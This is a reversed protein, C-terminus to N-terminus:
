TSYRRTLQQRAEKANMWGNEDGSCRGKNLEMMLTNWAMMKEYEGYEEIDLVVYRVHGNETLFLPSGIAVDNLVEGYNCLESVPKINPM